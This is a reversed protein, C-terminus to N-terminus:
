GKLETNFPFLFTEARSNIIKEAKRESKICMENKEVRSQERRLCDIVYHAFNQGLNGGNRAGGFSKLTFSLSTFDIDKFKRLLCELM